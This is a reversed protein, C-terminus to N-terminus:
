IYLRRIKRVNFKQRCLPCLPQRELAALLCVLCFVHGCETAAPEVLKDMCIRCQLTEAFRVKHPPSKTLDNIILRQSKTPSDLTLDLLHRNDKINDNEDLQLISTPEQIAMDNITEKSQSPILYLNDKVEKIKRSGHKIQNSRMTNSHQMSSPNFSRQHEVRTPPIELLESDSNDDDSCIYMINHEISPTAIIKFDLDHHSLANRVDVDDGPM